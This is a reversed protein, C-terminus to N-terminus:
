QISTLVREKKSLQDLVESGVNQFVPRAKDLAYNIEKNELKSDRDSAFHRGVLVGKKALFPIGKELSLDGVTMAIVGFLGKGGQTPPKGLKGAPFTYEKHQM